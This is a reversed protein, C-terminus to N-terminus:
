TVASSISALSSCWALLIRCMAEDYKAYAPTSRGLSHHHDGNVDIPHHQSDSGCVGRAMRISLLALSADSCQGLADVLTSRPAAYEHGRWVSRRGLVGRVFISNYSKRCQLENGFDFM